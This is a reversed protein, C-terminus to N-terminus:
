RMHTDVVGMGATRKNGVNSFRALRLLPFLWDKHTDDSERITFETRGIFGVFPINKGLHVMRTRLSYYKVYVDSNVWDILSERDIARAEGAIRNWIGVLNGFIYRPDPFLMMPHGSGRSTFQTPTLFEFDITRPPEQDETQCLDALPFVRVEVSELLFKFPGLEFRLDTKSLLAEM